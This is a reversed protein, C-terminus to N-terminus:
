IFSLLGREAMAAALERDGVTYANDILAARFRGPASAAAAAREACLKWFASATVAATFADAVAAFAGCLCSFMDGSGTIRSM